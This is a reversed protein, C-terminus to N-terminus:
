KAAPNKVVSGDPSAWGCMALSMRLSDCNKSGPMTNVDCVASSLRIWLDSHCISDTNLRSDLRQICNMKLFCFDIFLFWKLFKLSAFSTAIM